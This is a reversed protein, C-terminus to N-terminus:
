SYDSLAFHFGLHSARLALILRETRQSYTWLVATCRQGLALAGIMAADLFSADALLEGARAMPLLVTHIRELIDDNPAAVLEVNEMLIIHM